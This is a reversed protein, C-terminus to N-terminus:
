QELEAPAVTIKEAIAIKDMILSFKTRKVAEEQWEARLDEATKKIHSLYEDYKLGMSVVQNKMELAMKNLEGEVLIKPLNIATAKIIEDVIQLRKKEKARYKKNYEVNQKIKVRLDSLSSFDGLSKAWDDNLELLEEKGATAEAFSPTKNTKEDSNTKKAKTQRAEEIVEDIEKEEVMISEEEKAVVKGAIKKYDVLKIEPMIATKITFGLPNDRAIKTITIAPRGVADIKNEILIKPYLHDLAHEATEWLIKEEGIKQEVLNTPAHGQRFGPIDAAASFEKLVENRYREFEEITLEGTIEVESAPLQTVEIKM